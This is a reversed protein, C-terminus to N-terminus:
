KGYPKPDKCDSSGKAHDGGCDICVHARGCSGDCTKPKKARAGKKGFISNFVWCVNHADTARGAAPRAARTPPTTPALAATPAAGLNFAAARETNARAQTHEHTQHRGFCLKCNAPLLGNFANAATEANYGTEPKLPAGTLPDRTAMCRAMHGRLQRDYEWVASGYQDYLRLVETTHRRIEITPHVLDIYEMLRLFATVRIPEPLTSTQDEEKTVEFSVRGTSDAVPQIAGGKKALASVSSEYGTEAAAVRALSVDIRPTKENELLERISAPMVATRALLSLDVTGRGSVPISRPTKSIHSYVPDDPQEQEAPKRKRDGNTTANRKFLDFQQKMASLEDSLTQVQQAATPTQRAVAEKKAKDLAARLATLREFEAAGATAANFTKVFNGLATEASKVAPDVTPQSQLLKQLEALDEPTATLPDACRARLQAESTGAGGSGSGSGSEAGAAAGAAAPVAITESYGSLAAAVDLGAPPRQAVSIMRVAAKMAKTLSTEAIQDKIGGQSSPKACAADVEASSLGTALEFAKQAEARAKNKFGKWEVQTTDSGVAWKPLEPDAGMRLIAAADGLIVNAGPATVEILSM